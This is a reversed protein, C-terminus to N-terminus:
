NAKRPSAAATSDGAATPDIEALKKTIDPALPGKPSQKLYARLENAASPVDQKQFFVDALLAHVQPLNNNPNSEVERASKEADDLQGLRFYAVAQLYSALSAGPNMALVKGATSVANTYELSDLQLSALNMYPPIYQPDAAIAKTFAEHADPADGGVAYLRGLENWAAAYAPYEGVAKEFHAAATELKNNRADSEGKEFEKRASSPVRLSTVSIASGQVGAVRALRFTGVDITQLDPPNTIPRVASQFGDLSIRLECGALNAFPGAASSGPFSSGPNGGMGGLGRTIPTDSAASLDENGQPGAGLVFQFYGKLDTRITQITGMGCTLEVSVPEPAPQGTDMVVRGDVYLPQHM